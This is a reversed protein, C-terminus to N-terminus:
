QGGEAKRQRRWRRANEIRAQRQREIACVASCTTVKPRIALREPHIEGGCTVCQM